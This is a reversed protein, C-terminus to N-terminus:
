LQPSNLLSEFLSYGMMELIVDIVTMPAIKPLQIMRHWRIETQGLLPHQQM